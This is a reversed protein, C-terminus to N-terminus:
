IMKEPVSIKYTIGDDEHLVRVTMIYQDNSFWSALAQNIITNMSTSTSESEAKVRAYVGEDLRAHFTLRAM